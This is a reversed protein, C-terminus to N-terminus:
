YFLRTIVPFIMSDLFLTKYHNSNQPTLNGFVPGLMRVRHMKSSCCFTCVSTWKVPNKFSNVDDGLLDLLWFSRVVMMFEFTRFLAFQFKPECWVCLCVLAWIWGLLKLMTLSCSPAPAVFSLLQNGRISTNSRSSIPFSIASSPSLPIMESTELSGEKRDQSRIQLGSSQNNFHQKTESQWALTDM